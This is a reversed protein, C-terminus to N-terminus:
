VGVVCLPPPSGAVDRSPGHTYANASLIPLGASDSGRVTAVSHEARSSLNHIALCETGSAVRARGPDRADDDIWDPLHTRRPRRWETPRAASKDSLARCQSASWDPTTSWRM